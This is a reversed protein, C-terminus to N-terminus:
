VINPLANKGRVARAREEAYAYLQMYQTAPAIGNPSTEWSMSRGEKMIRNLLENKENHKLSDWKENANVVAQLIGGKTAWVNHEDRTFLWGNFHEGETIVTDVFGGTKSAIVLSGACWTEFQVLGCPEYISPYFGFTMMARVLPGIQAQVDNGRLILANGTSKAKLELENLIKTAEETESAGMTIFVGKVAKVADMAYPLERIGKQSTDYRGIFCFVPRNFDIKGKYDPMNLDIWKALQEAIRKKAEVIDDGIKFNLPTLVGSTPDIWTKLVSNTEPNFAEPNSGNVIGFLKGRWAIDKAVDELGFSHAGQVEQAFQPSVTNVIDAGYMCTKLTNIGNGNIALSNGINMLAFHKKAEEHSYHGQAHYANNHFTFVLPPISGDVMSKYQKCWLIEIALSGHCDEFNIISFKKPNSAIFQAACNSFYMWRDKQMADPKYVSPQKEDLLFRDEWNTDESSTDELFYVSVHRDTGPIPLKAKYVNNVKGQGYHDFFQLKQKLILKGQVEKALISYKPVILAGKCSPNLKLIAELKNTPVEALGGCKLTARVAEATVCAIRFTKNQTNEKSIKESIRSISTDCPFSTKAYSRLRVKERADFFVRNCDTKLSRKVQDAVSLNTKPLVSFLVTQPDSILLEKASELNIKNLDSVINLLIDKFNNSLHNSVDYKPNERCLQLFVCFDNLTKNANITEQLLQISKQIPNKSDSFVIHTLTDPYKQIQQYAEDIDSMRLASAVTYGIFERVEPELLNFYDNTISLSCGLEISKKFDEIRSLQETYRYIKLQSELLDISTSDVSQLNNLNTISNTTIFSIKNTM